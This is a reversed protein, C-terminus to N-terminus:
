QLGMQPFQPVPEPSLSLCANGWNLCPDSVSFGLTLPFCHTGFNFGYYVMFFSFFPLAASIYERLIAIGFGLIFEPHLSLNLAQCTLWDKSQLCGHPLDSQNAQHIPGLPLAPGSCHQVRLSCLRPVLALHLTIHSTTLAHVRPATPRQRISM